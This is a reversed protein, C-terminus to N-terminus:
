LWPHSRVSLRGTFVVGDSGALETGAGLLPHELESLGVATLDGLSPPTDLWFRQRDFAYTPLAIRRGGTFITEWRVEVGAIFARAVGELLADIQPRDGRQTAIFVASSGEGLCGQGLTSLTADPGLEVFRTVGHDELWRVGDFFRVSERVHAVWYAPSCLEEATAQVGTVNSVVPIRPAHFSVGAAVQEFESLMPEMCASHFGHSVRLRKARRGSAEWESVRGSVAAQEGSIVVASPGNVAAISVLREHGRLLEAVEAESAQLAVMVGGEPLAQMLRGRAAVLVCADELGLVGAVHAAVLEGISHGMVFDARVGWSELLRFLAVEVAFLGSQTFVTRDLLGDVDPAAFVVERLSCGLLPDMVACVADFAEAFVRYAAHLERGMGARQSGQGSFMFTTLGEVPAGRVVGAADTGEVVAGLGALLQARDSGLAVARHEFVSRTSVLSSAIDALAAGPDATVFERLREAQGDLARSSRASLVWPVVSSVSEGDGLSLTSGTEPLEAGKGVGMTEPETPAQELIVHANTGSIGFGSVAARRPGGTEPWVEAETLLEVAGSAWDVHPSPADVHLTAPLVGHRMAMVMKIVGAVGAAAQTHGINSKLSGLRLARDPERDQGYTALLAQAEIPDGLATGTGHAEVADVDSAALRANALAARIVRQQSPGNPATLGNSAGDQNVASGRVVALVEHGHRRADSLRELVLVGVGEGFGTGDATASFAKCRGDPALGRQRSFEVFLGPTAMVTAGGALALSCEGGRLAQVALHVAVLSSSCATDVTVAAGELGLAYAVRGSVVSLSGGTLTFGEAPGGLDKGAYTLRPLYDSYAVGTFVGTESGAMSRPDIGARELAEWSTELLLRQQPDMASAERPSIGFFSADFDATKYLFGGGRTYVKGSAEPDPDYLGEDWGRDIPFAGIADVGGSVLDWLGEPSSVGGPFRCGMGVIAIPETNRADLARLRGRAELLETSAKKLYELLKADANDSM